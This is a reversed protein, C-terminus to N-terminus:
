RDAEWTKFAAAEQASFVGPIACPSDNRHFVRFSVANGADNYALDRVYNDAIRMGMGHLGPEPKTDLRSRWDFGDGEDQIRFSSADPEISYSFKVKRAAVEPLANKERILDMTDKGSELWANKERFSIRCNGHEIANVLLELIAVHLRETDVKNVLNSTYLYGTVLNSYALIDLPDNDIEFTGSFRIM